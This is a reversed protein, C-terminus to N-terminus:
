KLIDQKIIPLTFTFTAGKGVTSEITIKGGHLEVIQKGLYLGLGIGIKNYVLINGSRYFKTFIKPMEEQSIGVGTDTVSVAIFEGDQKASVTVGGKETYKVANDIMNLLVSKIKEVDIEVMPLIGSGKDYTVTLNKAQAIPKFNEVLDAIIIEIQSPQKMLNVETGVELISIQLLQETLKELEQNNSRIKQVFSVESENLAGADGRILVDIYGYIAAVPTRLNHSAIAIFDQKSKEISLINSLMNTAQQYRGQSVSLRLVIVSLIPLRIYLDLPANDYFLLTTYTAMSLVFSLIGSRVGYALTSSSIHILYVLYFDNLSWHAFYAIASIVTVSNFVYFIKIATTLSPKLKALFMSLQDLSESIVLAVSLPIAMQNNSVFLVVIIGLKVLVRIAHVILETHEKINKKVPVPQTTQQNKKDEM